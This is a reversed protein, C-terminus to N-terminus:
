KDTGWVEVEVWASWKNENPILGSFKVWSTAHKKIKIKQPKHTEDIKITESTGDSFEVLATHWYSDHLDHYQARNVIVLKDVEVDRGFDIKFWLDDRKDPGWSHYPWIGHESSMNSGDIANRAAYWSEGRCESNSTAHPYFDSDGRIDFSNLALNRYASWEQNNSVRASVNHLNGAFSEKSYNRGNENIPIPFTIKGGPAYVLSGKINKDLQVFLHEAGEVVLYDGQQYEREIKLSVTNNEKSDNVDSQTILTNEADFLKISLEANQKCAAMLMVACVIAGLKYISKFHM